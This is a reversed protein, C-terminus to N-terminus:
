SDGERQVGPADGAASVTASGPPGALRSTVPPPLPAAQDAGSFQQRGPPPRDRWFPHSGAYFCLGLWIALTVLAVIPVVIAVLNPDSGVM